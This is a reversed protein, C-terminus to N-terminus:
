KKNRPPPASRPIGTCMNRLGLQCSMCDGCGATIPAIVVHDGPKLSPAGASGAGRMPVDGDFFHIDSPCLAPAGLRVKIEGPGPADVDVEEVSLPKGIEYFVAARVM